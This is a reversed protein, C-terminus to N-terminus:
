RPTPKGCSGTCSPRCRRPRWRSSRPPTSAAAMCRGSRAASARAADAPDLPPHLHNDLWIFYFSAGIWAIGVIMHAWRLTLNLWDALFAADMSKGVGALARRVVGRNGNCHELEHRGMPVFCSASWSSSRYSEPCRTPPRGAPRRRGQAAPATTAACPRSSRPECTRAPWSSLGVAVPHVGVQVALLAVQGVGAAPVAAGALRHRGARELLLPLLHRRLQQLGSKRVEEEEHEEGGSPPSAPLPPYACRRFRGRRAEGGIPSLFM